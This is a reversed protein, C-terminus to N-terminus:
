HAVYRAALHRLGRHINSKVASVSQGTKVATQELSLGELRTCEISQRQKPPLSALAEEVQRVADGAVVAPTSVLFDAWDDIDEHALEHRRNRLHDICKHRAIAHVWATLPQSVLYSSRKLHIAMIVEQVVDEVDQPCKNMRRQLFGRLYLSLQRLVERYAAADGNMAQMWLAHLRTELAHLQDSM